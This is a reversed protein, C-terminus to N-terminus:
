FSTAPVLLSSMTVFFECFLDNGLDSVSNHLKGHRNGREGDVAKATVCSTDWALKDESRDNEGQINSEDASSNM